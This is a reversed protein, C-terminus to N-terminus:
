GFVGPFRDVLTLMPSIEARQSGGHRRTLLILNKNIKLADVFVLIGHYERVNLFPIYGRFSQPFKPHFSRTLSLVSPYM